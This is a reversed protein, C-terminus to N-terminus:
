SLALLPDIPETMDLSHRRSEGLVDEFLDSSEEKTVPHKKYKRTLKTRKLKLKSKSKSNRETTTQAAKEEDLLRLQDLINKPEYKRTVPYNEEVAEEDEASAKPQEVVTGNRNTYVVVFHSYSADNATNIDAFDRFNAFQDEPYTYRQVYAGTQPRGHGNKNNYYSFENSSESSRFLTPDNDQYFTGGRLVGFDGSGLISQDFANSAKPISEVSRHAHASVLRPARPTTSFPEGAQFYPRTHTIPQIYQTNDRFFTSFFNQPQAPNDDSRYQAQHQQNHYQTNPLPQVNLNESRSISHQQYLLPSSEVRPGNNHYGSHINSPEALMDAIIVVLLCSSIADTVM